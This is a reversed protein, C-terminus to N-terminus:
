AGGAQYVCFAESVDEEAEAAPEEAESEPEPDPASDPEPSEDPEGAPEPSAPAEVAEEEKDAPAIGGSGPSVGGGWAM